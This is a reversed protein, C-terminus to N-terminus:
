RAPRWRRRIAWARVAAGGGSVGQRPELYRATASRVAGAHAGLGFSVPTSIEVLRSEGFAAATRDPALRILDRDWPTIAARAPKLPARDAVRVMEEIPRVGCIPEKAFPFALAVAGALRGDLFVPSGSMGQLVGAIWAPGSLRMLIVAQKPGANELVGLVEVQFEEVRSGAFVTRGVGKMGARVDRMPFFSVQASLAAAFLFAALRFVLGV